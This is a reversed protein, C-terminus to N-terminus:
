GAVVHGDRGDRCLASLAQIAGVDAAEVHPGDFMAADGVAILLLRARSLAVCQRNPIRLFGYKRRMADEDDPGNITTANSRTVSLLVVDFERGQFADVTGIRVRERARTPDDRWVYEGDDRRTALGDRQLEGWIAAVQERYFSIVGITREPACELLRRLEDVVARAEVPRRKSQRGSEAGRALPVDIWAACRGIHGEIDHAFEAAKRGSTLRADGEREYFWRSVLAGLAPPMRYQVDLTVVRPIQDRAERARLQRFLREFLSEELADRAQAGITRSLDAELDPELLHPLQRHDGVLVIRRGAMSMPIFLDLPNARAAEDIVVSDFRPAVRDPLRLADGMPRSDAQQCTAAFARGYRGVLEEVVVADEELTDALQHLALARGDASRQDAIQWADILASLKAVLVPTVAPGSVASTPAVLRDLLADRLEGLRALFPPPDPSAWEAAEGLLALAEPWVWAQGDLARRALAAGFAGGDAFAAPRDHLRLVISRFRRREERTLSAAAVEARADAAAARVGDLVALSVHGAALSLVEDLYADMTRRDLRDFQLALVLDRVRRRAEAGASPPVRDRLAAALERRWRELRAADAERDEARGGVRRAPLGLLELGDVANDVADHQYSTVLDRAPRGGSEALEALRTELAHIVRTKGTGPPGQIVAIDPTNLATELAARQAPNPEGGFVARVAATVAPIPRYDATPVDRDELLMWLQPMPGLGSRIRVDAKDRRELRKADGRISAFLVGRPPLGALGDSTWRTRLRTGDLAVLTGVRVGEPGDQRRSPRRVPASAGDAEDDEAVEDQETDVADSAESDDNDDDAFRDVPTHRRVKAASPIGPAAHACEIEVEGVRAGWAELAEAPLPGLEFVLHQEDYRVCREYHLAGLQRQADRVQRGELQQYRRWINLYTGTDRSMEALQEAMEPGLRAAVTHEVFRLPAALLLLPRRDHPEPLRRSRTVKVVRLVGERTRRVDVANRGGFITFADLQDVRRNAAAIVARAEGGLPGPPLFLADSLAAAVTDFTMRRRELSQMQELLKEDLALDIPIDVALVRPLEALALVAGEPDLREVVALSVGSRRRARASLETRDTPGRGEVRATSDAGWALLAEGADAGALVAVEVGATPRPAADPFGVAIAVNAMRDILERPNM